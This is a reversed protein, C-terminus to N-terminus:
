SALGLKKVMFAEVRKRSFVFRRGVKMAPLKKERIWAYIINKTIKGGFMKIIDEVFILDESNVTANNINKDEIM